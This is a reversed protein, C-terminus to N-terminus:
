SGVREWMDRSTKFGRRRSFAHIHWVCCRLTGCSPATHPSVTFVSDRPARRCPRWGCKNENLISSERPPPCPNCSYSFVFGKSTVAKPMPGGHIAPLPKGKPCRSHARNVSFRRGWSRGLGDHAGREGVVVRASSM